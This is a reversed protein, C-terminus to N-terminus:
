KLLNLYVQQIKRVNEGISFLNHVRKQGNRGLLGAYEKDGVIRLIAKALAGSDKPPVLLGSNGDKVIELPGGASTAIVPKKMAMAEILVRGFPEKFTPLVLLDIANLLPIINELHGTFTVHEKLGISKSLKKLQDFYWDHKEIKTDGVIVIHFAPVKTRLQEMANLLIHQGKAPTIRGIVSILFTDAPIGWKLRFKNNDGFPFLTDCDVANYIVFRKQKKNRPPLYSEMVAKSNAVLVDSYNLFMRGFGRPTLFNRTFSVIPIKMIKAAPLAYQTAIDVNAHILEIDYRRILKILSIVTSLYPIPNRLKLPKLPVIECKIGLASVKKVLPGPGPLTVLPFFKNRGLNALLELLSNESGYIYSYHDIYLINYMSM